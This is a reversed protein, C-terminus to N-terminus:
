ALEVIEPVIRTTRVRRRNRALKQPRSVPTSVKPGVTGLVSTRNGVLGIPNTPNASKCPIMSSASQDAIKTAPQVEAEGRPNAAESAPAHCYVRNLDIGVPLDVQEVRGGDVLGPYLRASDARDESLFVVQSDSFVAIAM